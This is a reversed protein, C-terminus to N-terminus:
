MTQRGEKTKEKQMCVVFKKSRGSLRGKHVAGIVDSAVMVKVSFLIKV